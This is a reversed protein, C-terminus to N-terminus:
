PQKKVAYNFSARLEVYPGQFGKPLSTYHSATLTGWAARDVATEGSREELILSDAMVQGSPLVKFRMVVKGAAESDNPKVTQWVSGTEERLHILWDGFDVGNTDSMLEVNSEARLLAQPGSQERVAERSILVRGSVDTLVACTVDAVIWSTKHVLETPRDFTAGVVESHSSVYPFKPHVIVYIRLQKKFIRAREPSMSLKFLPRSDNQDIAFLSKDRGTEDRAGFTLRHDHDYIIQETRQIREVVIHANMANTAVYKGLPADHVSVQLGLGEAGINEPDKYDRVESPFITPKITLELTDPDYSFGGEFLLVEAPLLAETPVGQLSEEVRRSFENATEFEGKQTPIRAL